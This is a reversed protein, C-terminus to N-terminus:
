AEGDLVKKAADLSAQWLKQHKGEARAQEWIPHTRLAEAAALYAERAADGDGGALRVETMARDARLAAVHLPLLDAPLDPADAM